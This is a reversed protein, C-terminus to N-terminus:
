SPDASLAEDLAARRDRVEAALLDIAPGLEPARPEARKMAALVEELMRTRQEERDRLADVAHRFLAFLSKLEDARRLSRQGPFHGQALLRLDRGMVYVPGAIRHSMLFGVLGLGVALVAGVALLVWPVGSAARPVPPAGAPAIAAAFQQHARWVWFGFLVALGLGWAALVITYKLQFSRDVLYTRRKRSPDM